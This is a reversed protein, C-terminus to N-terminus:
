AGAALSQVEEVKQPLTITFVSGKDVQSEVSVRGGHQEVISKVIALGLGSGTRKQHEANQVRYFKEFLYPLDSVPVGLGTDSVQIRIELPLVQVSVEVQGGGPTYKIANTLLNHIVHSFRAPAIMAKVTDPPPTYRLELNNEKASFQLDDVQKQLYAALSVPERQLDAADQVPATDLVEGVVGLIREASHEILGLLETVEPNAELYREDYTALLRACSLINGLPSKIDHSVMRIMDDKLESVRRLASLEQQKLREIEHQKKRLSIQINIRAQLEGQRFPKTIYDVAGGKFSNVKTQLDDVASVFIIPIDETEPDAKLAIMVDYGNMVPMNMDLLILDPHDAKAKDIAIRGSIATDLTYGFGALSACVLDLNIQHDDVILIKGNNTM